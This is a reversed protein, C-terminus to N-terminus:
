GTVPRGTGIVPYSCPYINEEPNVEFSSVERYDSSEVPMNFTDASSLSEETDCPEEDEANYPLVNFREARDAHSTQEYSLFSNQTSAEFDEYRLPQDDIDQTSM